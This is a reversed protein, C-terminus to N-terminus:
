RTMMLRDVFERGGRDRRCPGVVADVFGEFQGITPDHRHLPMRLLGRGVVGHLLAEEVRENGLAAILSSCPAFATSAANAALRPMAIMLNMPNAKVPDPEISASATCETASVPLWNSSM